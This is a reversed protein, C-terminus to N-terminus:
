EGGAIQAARAGFDLLNVSQNRGGTWDKPHAATRILIDYFWGDVFFRVDSCSFYVHQGNAAKFMGSCYFHGNSWSVLALGHAKADKVLRARYQRAFATFEETRASSSEFVNGKWDELRKMEKRTPDLRVVRETEKIYGM